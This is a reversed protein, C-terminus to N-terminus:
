LRGDATEKNRGSENKVKEKGVEINQEREEIRPPGGEEEEEEEQAM